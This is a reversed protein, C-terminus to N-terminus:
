AVVNLYKIQKRRGPSDFFRGLMSLVSRKDFTQVQTSDQNLAWFEFKMSSILPVMEYAARYLRKRSFLKSIYKWFEHTNPFSSSEIWHFFSEDFFLHLCQIYGPQQFMAQYLPFIHRVLPILVKKDRNELCMLFYRQDWFMVNTEPRTCNEPNVLSFWMQRPRYPLAASFAYLRVLRDVVSSKLLSGQRRLYMDYIPFTPVFTRQSISATRM